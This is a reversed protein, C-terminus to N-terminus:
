FTYGIGVSVSGASAWESVGVNGFEESREPDRFGDPTELSWINLLAEGRVVIREAAFWRVLGGVQGIFSSGFDFRDAENLGREIDSEPAADWAIGGGALLMPNLGHWTRSGTLSLRVRGDLVMIRADTEGIVRNGAVRRPDVVDRTTPIAGFGFEISIPGGFGLGYRVGTLLGPGPGYGFRGTGPSIWGVFVGAEQRNEIFRYPSPVDQATLAPPVVLFAIAAAILRHARM